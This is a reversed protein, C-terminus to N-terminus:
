EIGYYTQGSSKSKAAYFRIELDLDEPIGEKFTDLYKRITDIVAKGGTTVATKDKAVFCVKERGQKEYFAVRQVLFTKGIMDEIQFFKLEEKEFDKSETVAIRDGLKKAM